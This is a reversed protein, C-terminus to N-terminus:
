IDIRREPDVGFGDRVTRGRRVSREGVAHDRDRQVVERGIWRLGLARARGDHRGEHPRVQLRAHAQVAAEADLELDLAKRAILEVLDAKRIRAALRNAHELRPGERPARSVPAPRAGAARKELEADGRAGVAMRLREPLRETELGDRRALIRVADAPEFAVTQRDPEVVACRKWGAEAKARRVERAARFIEFGFSEVHARSRRREAAVAR